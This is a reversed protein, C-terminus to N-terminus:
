APLTPRTRASRDAASPRALRANGPLRGDLAPRDVQQGGVAPQEHGRALAPEVAEAGLGAVSFAGAAGVDSRERQRRIPRSPRAVQQGGGADAVAVADGPADARAAEDRFEHMLAAQVDDGDLRVGLPGVSESGFHTVGAEVALAHGHDRGVGFPTGSGQRRVQGFQHNGLVEARAPRREALVKDGPREGRQPGVAADGAQRDARLVLAGEGGEHGVGPQGPAAHPGGAFPGHQRAFPRQGAGAVPGVLVAVGAIGADRGISKDLRREADQPEAPGRVVADQRAVAVARLRLDHVASQEDLADINEAGHVHVGAPQEPLGIEGAEALSVVVGGVLGAGVGAAGVVNGRRFTNVDGIPGAADTEVRRGALM